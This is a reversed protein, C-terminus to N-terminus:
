PNSLKPFSLLPKLLITLAKYYGLSSCMLILLSASVLCHHMPAKSKILIIGTTSEKLKPCRQPPIMKLM